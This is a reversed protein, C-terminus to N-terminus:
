EPAVTLELVGSYAGAPVQRLDEARLEVLVRVRSRGCNGNPRPPRASLGTLPVGPTLERPGRRLQPANIRVELGVTHRGTGDTLAFAGGSGTGFGTLQYPGAPDMNVCVRVRERARDVSPSLQGFDLDEFETISLTAATAGASLGCLLLVSAVQRATMAALM